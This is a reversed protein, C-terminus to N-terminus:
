AFTNGYMLLEYELIDKSHRVYLDAVNIHIKLPCLDWVILKSFVLWICIFSFWQIKLM